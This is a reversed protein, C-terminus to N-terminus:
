NSSTYPILLMAEHQPHFEKNNNNGLLVNHCICRVQLINYIVSCQWTTNINISTIIWGVKSFILYHLIYASGASIFTGFSLLGSTSRGLCSRFRKLSSMSISIALSMPLQFPTNWLSIIFFVPSLSHSPFCWGWVSCGFQEALIM